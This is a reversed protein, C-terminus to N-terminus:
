MVHCSVRVKRQKRAKAEAIKKIPRADIAKQKEKYFEIQEKSVPIPKKIHRTEEKAFWDPM